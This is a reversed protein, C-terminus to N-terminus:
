STDGQRHTRGCEVCAWVKDPGDPALDVGVWEICYEGSAHGTESAMRRKAARVVDAFMERDTADMEAGGHVQIIEGDVEVPRCKDESM